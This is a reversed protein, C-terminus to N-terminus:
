LIDPLMREEETKKSFYTFSQHENNWLCKTSNVPSAVRDQAKRRPFQQKNQNPNKAVEIKDTISRNLNEIDEQILKFLKYRELFKDM